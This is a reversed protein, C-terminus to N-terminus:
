HLNKGSVDEWKKDALRSFAERYRRSTAEIVEGPLEPAPPEQNWGYSVLWDRVPQKDFSPPSSGPSYQKEDWFRSSDPTLLEDIIILEGSALGFEFKTDAIIIGRKLAYDHAFQYILLSKQKLERATDRGVLKELEQWDLPLDHGTAAKTTPTFLIEPLKEAEKLGSPLTYDSVNGSQEYEQWAAGSLYGRVVCEVPITQAKRVIM